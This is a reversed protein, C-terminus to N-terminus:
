LQAMMDGDEAAKLLLAAGEAQREPSSASNELIEMGMLLYAPSYDAEVAAHLYELAKTRNPEVGTGSNYLGYLHVYSETYGKQAAATFYGFAKAPDKEFGCAGAM